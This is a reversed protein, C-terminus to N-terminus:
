QRATPRTSAAASEPPPTTATWLCDHFVSQSGNLDCGGGNQAATNSTFSWNTVEISSDGFAWLGAGVSAGNDDIVVTEGLVKTAAGAAIGGGGFGAANVSFTSDNVSALSTLLLLGGGSGIGAASNNSFTSGEIVVQIGLCGVGGGNGASTNGFVICDTMTLADVRATPADAFVGGGTDAANNNTIDCDM